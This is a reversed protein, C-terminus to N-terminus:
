INGVIKTWDLVALGLALGLIAMGLYLGGIIFMQGDTCRSYLKMLKARTCLFPVNYTPREHTKVYPIKHTQPM